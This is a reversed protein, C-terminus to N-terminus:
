FTDAPTVEGIVKGAADRAQVQPVDDPDKKAPVEIVAVRDTVEASFSGAQVTVANEPAMVVYRHVKQHRVRMATMVEDADPGAALTGGSSWHTAQAARGRVFETLAWLYAGSPARMLGVGVRGGNDLRQYAAYLPENAVDPGVSGALYKRFAQQLGSLDRWTTGEPAVPIFHSEAAYENPASGYGADAEHYPTLSAGDVWVDGVAFEADDVSAAWVGDAVSPLERFRDSFGGDAQVDRGTVVSVSDAKVALVIVIPDEQEAPDATLINARDGARSFAAVPGTPVGDDERDSPGHPQMAEPEDGPRGYWLQRVWQGDQTPFLILTYRVKGEIDGAAVVRVDEASIGEWEAQNRRAAVARLEDVWGTDDALSGSTETPYGAEEPTQPKENSNSPAAADPRGLLDGGVVFGMAIVVTMVTAAAVGGIRTIRDRRIARDVAPYPRTGQTRRDALGHLRTALGTPLGQEHAQPETM